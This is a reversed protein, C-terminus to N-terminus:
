ASRLIIVRFDTITLGVAEDVARRRAQASMTIPFAPLPPFPPEGVMAPNFDSMFAELRFEADLMSADDAAGDGPNSNPSSVAGAISSLPWENSRSASGLACMVVAQTGPTREIHGNVVLLFGILDLQEPVSVTLEGAM